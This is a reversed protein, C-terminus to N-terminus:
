YNHMQATFQDLAFYSPTNMGWQGSDSSEMTFYVAVVEGLPTLDFTQWDTVIGGNNMDALYFEATTETGDATVGHAILKFWDGAEFKKAFDNGELMTYYSYATNTVKVYVPNFSQSAAIGSYKIVCSRSGVPTNSLESTDWYAVLYPSAIGFVGGKPMVEFQSPNDYWVGSAPKNNSSLVAPVFGDFSGWLTVNHSFTFGRLVIDGPKNWGTWIFDTNYDVDCDKLTIQVSTTSEPDDDSCATFGLQCLVLAGLLLKYKNM